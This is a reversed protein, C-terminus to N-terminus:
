VRALYRSRDQVRAPTTAHRGPILKLLTHLGESTLAKLEEVETDEASRGPPSLLEARRIQGSWARARATGLCAREPAVIRRITEDSLAKGSNRQSSSPKQCLWDVFEAIKGPTLKLETAGM